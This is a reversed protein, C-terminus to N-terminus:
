LRPAAPEADVVRCELHFPRPGTGQRPRVGVGAFGPKRDAGPTSWRRSRITRPRLPSPRPPSRSSSGATARGARRPRTPRTRAPPAPRTRAPTWPTRWQGQRAPLRAGEHGDPRRARRRGPLRRGRRRHRGPERDPPGLPRGSKSPDADKVGALDPCTDDADAIGDRDADPPLCGNRAPRPGERIPLRGEPRRARRRRHRPRRLHPGPDVRPQGDGPVPRHGARQVPGCTRTPRSTRSRGPRCGCTSRRAWRWTGPPPRSSRRAPATSRRWSTRAPLRRRSRRSPPEEGVKATSSIPVKSTRPLRRLAYPLLNM